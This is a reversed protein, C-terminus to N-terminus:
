CALGPKSSCAILPALTRSNTVLTTVKVPPFPLPWVQLALCHTKEFHQVAAFAETCREELTAEKTFDYDDLQRAGAQRTPSDGAM